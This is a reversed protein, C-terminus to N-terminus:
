AAPVNPVDAPAIARRRPGFILLAATALLLGGAGLLLLQELPSLSFGPTIPTLNEGLTVVDPDETQVPAPAADPAAALAKPISVPVWGVLAGATNLVAFRYEGGPLRSLNLGLTGADGVRVWDVATASPYVYLFYWDGPKAGPVTIALVGDTLTAELGGRNSEDLPAAPAEPAREPKPASKQPPAAVARPALASPATEPGSSDPTGSGGPQGPTGPTGPQGPTGPTGPTGPGEPTGPGGPEEIRVPGTIAPAPAQAGAPAAWSVANRFIRTDSGSWNRSDLGASTGNLAMLVHRNHAREDVAIGTGRATTVADKGTGVTTVTEALISVRTGTFGEFWAHDKYTSTSDHVVVSGVGPAEGAAFNTTFIPHDALLRYGTSALAEDDARERVAPNGRLTSLQNIGAQPSSGNDLWLVGTGAADTQTIFATLRTADVAEPADWVVVDYRTADFDTPLATARTAMLDGASLMATTQGGSDGLVLVRPLPALRFDITTRSAASVAAAPSLVGAFGEAQVQVQYEGPPLGAFAFTGRADTQTHQPIGRVGVSAGVIPTGDMHSLVTGRLEGVTITPLALTLNQMSQATVTVTKSAPTHGLKTATLTYTGPVLHATFRGQADTTWTEGREGHSVTAGEIPVGKESTVVGNVGSSQRLANLAAFVNIRGAGFRPNPRASGYRDDFYSTNELAAAIQDVSLGAQASRLLAVAGAVHPTAMSTGTSDGWKGGPMASFVRTGPASANPKVFAQPWGQAATIEAPWDTVAGCSGPDVVNDPGTMGVAFTEFINGPSSTGTAGCPANGIAIAPFIGAKRLAQVPAIFSADYGNSGLSMNVVDAARGAPKGDGDYPAMAWQMGALIKAFSGGGAGSLVNGVMLTAGPAVGIQTRSAAGGVVTGSVHTGHSGPDSPVTRIPTGSRDYAIWGGPFTPDNLNGGALKGAIDPHTADVGTDLVAVRVGAGTVGFDKWVRDAEIQSIGYTVPASEEAIGPTETSAGAPAVAPIGPAEAETATFSESPSVEFNPVVSTAGPLAALRALIEPTNPAQVLISNNIWFRNLVRVGEGSLAALAKEARAQDATATRELAASTRAPDGLAADPLEAETLTILIEITDATGSTKSSQTGALLEPAIAAPQDSGDSPASYEPSGTLKTTATLDTIRGNQAGAQASGPGLGQAFAFPAALAGAAVLALATVGLAAPRSRARKM